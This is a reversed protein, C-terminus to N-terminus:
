RAAEQVWVRAACDGSLAMRTDGVRVLVAGAAGTGLTTVRAGRYLGKSLLDRLEAGTAQLDVVSFEQGARCECLPVPGPTPSPGPRGALGLLGNFVGFLNRHRTM